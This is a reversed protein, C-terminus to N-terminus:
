AVIKLPVILIVMFFSTGCCRLIFYQCVRRGPTYKQYYIVRLGSWFGRNNGLGAYYGPQIFAYRKACFPMKM